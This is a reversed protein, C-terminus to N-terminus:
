ARIRRIKIRTSNSDSRNSNWVRTKGRIGEAIQKMTRGSLASTNDARDSIKKATEGTKILLWPISEDQSRMRVLAWHGKLKKGRLTLNLKGKALADLPEGEVEYTGLDWLLVTGAGYNGPPITGEFGGYEIPHDEVEMALRREGKEAPFGKPVAWSKLVGGMELRFDYHLRRAAHKQVVFGPSSRALKRSRVKGAPERTRSFDRKAKYRELAM